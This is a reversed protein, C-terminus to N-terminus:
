KEYKVLCKKKLGLKFADIKKSPSRLGTITMVATDERFIKTYNTIIHVVIVVLHVAVTVWTGGAEFVLTSIIATWLIVRILFDLLAGVGTGGFTIAPKRDAQNLFRLKKGRSLTLLDIGVTTM